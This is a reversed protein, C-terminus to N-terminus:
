EFIEAAVSESLSENELIYQFVEGGECLEQVFYLWEDSEYIEFIKIINPHNQAM